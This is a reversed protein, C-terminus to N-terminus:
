RSKWWRSFDEDKSKKAKGHEEGKERGRWGIEGFPSEPLRGSSGDVTHARSQPASKRSPTFLAIFNAM